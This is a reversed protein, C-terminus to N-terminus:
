YTAFPPKLWGFEPHGLNFGEVSHLDHSAREAVTAICDFATKSDFPVPQLLLLGGDIGPTDHLTAYYAQFLGRSEDTRICRLTAMSGSLGAPHAFFEEAPAGSVASLHKGVERLVEQCETDIAGSHMVLRPLVSYDENCERVERQFAALQEAVASRYRPDSPEYPVDLERSEPPERRRWGESHLSTIDVIQQSFKEEALQSPFRSQAANHALERRYALVKSTDSITSM